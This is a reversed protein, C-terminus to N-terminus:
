SSERARNLAETWGYQGDHCGLPASKLQSKRGTEFKCKETGVHDFHRSKLKTLPQIKSFLNHPFFTWLVEFKVIVFALTFTAKKVINTSEVRTHKEKWEQPFM